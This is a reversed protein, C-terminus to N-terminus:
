FLLFIVHKVEFAKTAIAEQEPVNIIEGPGLTNSIM